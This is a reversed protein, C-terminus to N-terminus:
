QNDKVAESIRFFVTGELLYAAAIAKPGFSINVKKNKDGDAGIGICAEVPCSEWDKVSERRCSVPIKNAFYEEVPYNNLNGKGTDEPIYSDIDLTNISEKLMSISDYLQSIDNIRSLGLINLLSEDAVTLGAGIGFEAKVFIAM